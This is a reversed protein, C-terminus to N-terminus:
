VAPLVDHVFWPDSVVEALMVVALPPMVLVVILPASATTKAPLSDLLLSRTEPVMPEVAGSFSTVTSIHNYMSSPPEACFVDPEIYKEHSCAAPEFL